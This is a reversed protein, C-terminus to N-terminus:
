AAERTQEKAAREAANLKAIFALIAGSDDYHTPAVGVGWRVVRGYDDSGAERALVNYFLVALRGSTDYGLWKPSRKTKAYVEVQRPRRSARVGNADVDYLGIVVADLTELQVYNTGRVPNRGWPSWSVDWRTWTAVPTKVISKFGNWYNSM